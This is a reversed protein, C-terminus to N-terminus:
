VPSPQLNLSHFPAVFCTSTAARLSPFEATTLVLQSLNHVSIDINVAPEAPDEVGGTKDGGGDGDSGGRGDGDGDGDGDIYAYDPTPPPPRGLSIGM